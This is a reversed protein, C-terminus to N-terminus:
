GIRNELDAIRQEDEIKIKSYFRQKSKMWLLEFKLAVDIAEEPDHNISDIDFVVKRTEFKDILKESALKQIFNISNKTINGGMAFKFGKDKVKRAIDIAIKFM